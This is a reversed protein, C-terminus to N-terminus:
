SRIRPRTVGGPAAPRRQAAIWTFPQIVGAPTIHEEHRSDVVTFGDLLRELDSADYRAVPLGSCREPGDVAFTAMVLAGGAGLAQDMVDLYRTQEAADTLFHFVARDHWLGYRRQPQWNLIDECLWRVPAADGLRHRAIDLATSSVDLVSLDLYGRARLEDVLLSAGGGVDIVPATRPVALRGILALSMAPEPQYWSVGTAGADAYRRDWHQRRASARVVPLGCALWNQFGGIVDTADRGLLRLTAAALTSSYGENCIIVVRQDDRIAAERFDSTPDLRWELVNRDIVLADSILGDRERQEFPRIDVLAAGSAAADHAEGPSLRRLGRRADALLADISTGTPNGDQHGRSRNSPGVPSVGSGYRAPLLASMSSTSRSATSLRASSISATSGVNRLGEDDVHIRFPEVIM